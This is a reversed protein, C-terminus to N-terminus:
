RDDSDLGEIKMVARYDVKAAAARRPRGSTEVINSPDIGDLDALAEQKALVKKLEKPSPDDTNKLGAKNLASTIRSALERASSAAASVKAISVGCKRCITITQHCIEFFLFTGFLSRCWLWRPICMTMLVFLHTKAAYKAIGTLRRVEADSGFASASRAGKDDSEDSESGSESADSEEEESDSDQRKKAPKKAPAARAAPKPAAPKPAAPKPAAPKPAASKSAFSECVKNYVKVYNDKIEQKHDNFVADDAEIHLRKAIEVKLQNFSLPTATVLGPAALAAQVEKIGVM